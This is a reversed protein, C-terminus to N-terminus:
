QQIAIAEIDVDGTTMDVAAQYNYDPDGYHKFTFYYVNAPTWLETAESPMIDYGDQQYLETAMVNAIASQRNADRNATPELSPNSPYSEGNYSMLRHASNSWVIFDQWGNSYSDALVVPTKVVTMRNIVNGENDFMVATCGGSGCFYQDQILVIHEATGDGNLDASGTLYRVKDQALSLGEPALINTDVWTAITNESASASPSSSSTKNPMNKTTSCGVITLSSLFLLGALARNNM